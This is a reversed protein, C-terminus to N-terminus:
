LPAVALTDPCNFGRNNAPEPIRAREEARRRNREEIRRRRAELDEGSLPVVGAPLSPGARARIIDALKRQHKCPGGRYM